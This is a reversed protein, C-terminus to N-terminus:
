ADDSHHELVRGGALAGAQGGGASKWEIMYLQSTLVTKLMNRGRKLEVDFTIVFLGSYM